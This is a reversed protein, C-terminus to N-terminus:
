RLYGGGHVHHYSSTQPGDRGRLSLFPTTRNLPLEGQGVHCFGRSWLGFAIVVGNNFLSHNCRVVLGLEICKRVSDDPRAPDPRSNRQRENSPSKNRRRRRSKGSLSVRTLFESRCVVWSWSVSRSVDAPVSFDYEQDFDLNDAEDSDMEDDLFSKDVANAPMGRKTPKSRDVVTSVIRPTERSTSPDNHIYRECDEAARFMSRAEESVWAKPHTEYAGGGDVTEDSSAAQLGMSSIIGVHRAMGPTKAAGTLRREVKQMKIDSKTIIWSPM